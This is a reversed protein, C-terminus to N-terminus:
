DYQGEMCTAQARQVELQELEAQEVEAKAVRVRHM